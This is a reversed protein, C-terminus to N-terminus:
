HCVYMTLIALYWGLSLAEGSYTLLVNCYIVIYMNLSQYWKLQDIKCEKGVCTYTNVVSKSTNVIIDGMLM